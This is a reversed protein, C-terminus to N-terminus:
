HDIAVLDLGIIKAHKATLPHTGLSAHDVRDLDLSYAVGGLALALGHEPEGFVPIVQQHAQMLGFGVALFVLDHEFVADDVALRDGAYSFLGHYLMFFGPM